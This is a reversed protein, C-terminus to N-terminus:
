EDGEEPTTPELPVTPPQVDQGGKVKNLNVYIPVPAGPTNEEVIWELLSKMPHKKM